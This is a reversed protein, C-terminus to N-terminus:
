RALRHLRDGSYLSHRGGDHRACVEYNGPVALDAWARGAPIHARKQRVGRPPVSRSSCCLTPYSENALATQSRGSNASVAREYSRGRLAARPRSSREGCRKAIVAIQANSVNSRRRSDVYQRRQPARGQVCGRPRSATTQLPRAPTARFNTQCLKNRTSTNPM